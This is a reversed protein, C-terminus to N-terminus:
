RDRESMMGYSADLLDVPHIARTKSGSRLLGAGIQMLCGPNGTAVFQAGTEAINALKTALVADSVEPEVLNFIGASGCCQDSDRLPVLELQPIASLVALPQLSVRQGHLLHCPADYCVRMPLPAGPKPGASALLESVDRVRMAVRAGRESWEGDHELLHGYDKMMAGCGASNVAIFEAGSKEFAEVNARALSRATELDGAHAHLAGCCRQGKAEVTSYGNVRLVRETARNTSTFLGEMVCGELVATSGREGTTRTSYAEGELPRSSSALMAMSFGLKGGLRAFLTPLPTAAFLRSMFMFLSLLPKRAFMGLIFRPLFPMREAQHITARTAELLHGYPVGSPCATECARCGLCRSIHTQVSENDPEIRGELLSRMLFIRGRPSDNEDELALYTPCSQLCFGCHVCADIGPIEDALPSGPLACEPKADAPLPDREIQTVSTTM